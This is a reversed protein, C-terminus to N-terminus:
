SNQRETKFGVKIASIVKELRINMHPTSFDLRRDFLFWLGPREVLREFTHDLGVSSLAPYSKKDTFLVIVVGDPIDFDVVKGLEPHHPEFGQYFRIQFQEERYEVFLDSNFTRVKFGLQKVGSLDPMLSFLTKFWNFM